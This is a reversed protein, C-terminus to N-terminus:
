LNNIMKPCTSTAVRSDCLYMGKFRNQWAIIEQANFSDQWIKQIHYFSDQGQLMLHLIKAENGNKKQCHTQWIESPYVSSPSSLVTLTTFKICSSYGPQDIVQRFYRIDKQAPLTVSVMYADKLGDTPHQWISTHYNEKNEITIHWGALLKAHPAILNEGKLATTKHENINVCGTVAILIASFLFHKQMAKIKM